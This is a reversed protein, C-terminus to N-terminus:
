IKALAPDFWPHFNLTEPRLKTLHLLYCKQADVKEQKKQLSCEENEVKADKWSTM